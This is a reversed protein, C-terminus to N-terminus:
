IGSIVIILGTEVLIKDLIEETCVSKEWKNCDQYTYRFERLQCVLSPENSNSQKPETGKSQTLQRHESYGMVTDTWEEM